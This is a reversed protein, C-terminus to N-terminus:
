RPQLYLKLMAQVIALRYVCTTAGGCCNVSHPTIKGGLPGVMLGGTNQSPIPGPHAESGADPM